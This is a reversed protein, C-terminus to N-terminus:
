LLRCESEYVGVVVTDGGATTSDNPDARRNDTDRLPFTPPSQLISNFSPGDTIYSSIANRHWFRFHRITLRLYPTPLIM